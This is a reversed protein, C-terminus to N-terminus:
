RKSGPKPERLRGVILATWLLVGALLCGAVSPWIAELDVRHRVETLSWVVPWPSLAPWWPLTPWFAQGIPEALLLVLLVGMAATRRAVRDGQLGFAIIGAAILSWGAVALDLALVQHWGWRSAIQLPWLVAQWVVMLNVWEIFLARLRSRQPAIVCLRFVPWATMLGLLAAFVLWRSASGVLATKLVMGWAVMLWFCWGLLVLKPGSWLRDMM